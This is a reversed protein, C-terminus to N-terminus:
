ASEAADALAGLRGGRWPGGLESLYPRLHALLDAPMYLPLLSLLSHTSRGPFNRGGACGACYAASRRASARGAGVRVSVNTVPARVDDM